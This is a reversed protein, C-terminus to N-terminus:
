SEHLYWGQIYIYVYINCCRFLHDVYIDNLLHPASGRLMYTFAEVFWVSSFSLLIFWSFQYRSTEGDDVLARQDGLRITNLFESRNRQSISGLTSARDGVEQARNPWAGSLHFVWSLHDYTLDFCQTMSISIHFLRAASLKVIGELLDLLLAM